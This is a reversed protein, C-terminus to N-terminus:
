VYPTKVERYLADLSFVQGRRAGNNIWKTPIHRFRKLFEPEPADGDEVIVIASPPVDACEMFSLFSRELLDLRGCSTVALTYNMGRNQIRQVRLLRRAHGGAHAGNPGPGNAERLRFVRIHAGAM